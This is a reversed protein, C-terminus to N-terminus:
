FKVASKLREGERCTWLIVKDGAARRAILLDFLRKNPEGLEPYKANINLTGDFDVAYVEPYEM